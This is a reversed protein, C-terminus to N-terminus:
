RVSLGLTDRRAYVSGFRADLRIWAPSRRVRVPEDAAIAEIPSDEGIERGRADRIFGMGTLAFVARMRVGAAEGPAEASTVSIVEQDLLSGATGLPGSEERAVLTGKRALLILERAPIDDLHGFGVSGPLAGRWAAPLAFGLGVPDEGRGLSDALVSADAVVDSPDVAGFVSRTALIDFGTRVWLGVRGDDRQKLRVVGSDDIRAARAVFAAVDGRDSDAALRLGTM